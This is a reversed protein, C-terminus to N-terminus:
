REDPVCYLQGLSGPQLRLGRANSVVEACGDDDLRALLEAVIAIVRHVVRVVARVHGLGDRLRLLLDVGLGAVADLMQERAHRKGLSLLDNRARESLDAM